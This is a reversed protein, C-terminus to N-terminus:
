RGPLLVNQIEDALNESAEELLDIVLDFGDAGGYYPDPIHDYDKRDLFDAMRVIKDEEEKTMAMERLNDYNSDDMAVLMDFRDFDSRRVPRSISTLDYGRHRAARRMRSDAPEGEHWGSTGASDVDVILGRERAIRRFIGEAAPSRCINGLCVFLVRFPKRPNDASNTM